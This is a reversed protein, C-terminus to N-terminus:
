VWGRLWQTKDRLAQWEIRQISKSHVAELDIWKIKEGEQEPKVVQTVLFHKERAIPAVATWKSLMLKNSQLVNITDNHTTM